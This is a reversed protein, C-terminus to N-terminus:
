PISAESRRFPEAKFWRAKSVRLMPSKRFFAACARWVAKPSPLASGRPPNNKDAEFQSGRPGGLVVRARAGVGVVGKRVLSAQARSGCGALRNREHAGDRASEEGHVVGELEGVARDIFEMRRGQWLSVPSRPAQREWLARSLRHCLRGLDILDGPEAGGLM